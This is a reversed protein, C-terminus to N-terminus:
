NRGSLVEEYVALTRNFMRDFTFNALFHERAASGMRRRLEANHALLALRQALVDVNGRPILFGTQGEAVAEGAGGVDSVLTPLGERMAELTTYPFGEYNSILCFIDAGRLCEATDNRYGLFRVRGSLGLAAAEARAAGL